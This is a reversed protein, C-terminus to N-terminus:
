MEEIIQVNQKNISKNGGVKAHCLILRRDDHETRKIKRGGLTLSLLVQFPHVRGGM